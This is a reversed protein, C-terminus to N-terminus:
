EPEPSCGEEIYGICSNHANMLPGVVLALAADEDSDPHLEDRAATLQDVIAAIADATRSLLRELENLPNIDRAPLWWGEAAHCAIATGVVPLEAEANLTVLYPGRPTLAYGCGEGPSSICNVMTLTRAVLDVTDVTGVLLNADDPPLHTEM